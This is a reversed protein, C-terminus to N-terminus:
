LVIGGFIFIIIIGIIAIYGFNNHDRFINNFWEGLHKTYFGFYQWFLDVSRKFFPLFKKEFPQYFGYAFQYRNEDVGWESPNEGASYNDMFPKKHHKASVFFLIGALVVAFGFIVMATLTDIQGFSGPFKHLSTLIYKSPLGISKFFPILPKLVLGPFVGVAMILIMGVWMPIQM